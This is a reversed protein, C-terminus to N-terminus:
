DAAKKIWQLFAKVAARQPGGRTLLHYGTGEEKSEDLLILRGAALDAEVFCRATVIVGQGDRAGDLMLNGPLQMSGGMRAPDIGKTLLWRSAESVGIEHLWPLGVVHDPTIDKIGSLLSPAAVVVITSAVLMEGELSPFPSTGYRISVDIGGAELTVVDPTPAILLNIDPHKHRFDALRPMLWASAFSPTTTLHLPRAAEAGSLHRVTQAIDEFSKLAANALLEGEASFVLARGSRNFLPIGLHTELGRLQQSIAAHSVNLRAGAQTVNGTDAFAALARIMGLPPLDRWDM